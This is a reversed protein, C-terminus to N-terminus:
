KLEEPATPTRLIDCFLAWRRDPSANEGLKARIYGRVMEEGLSYTIIYSRYQDFFRLSGAAREPSQLAYEVLWRQTEERDRRGDIYARAAEIRAGSMQRTLEQIRDYREAEEVPLGALPYLVKKEYELRELGPFLLELGYNATGEAILSQPSYLPYVTFEVWGRERVLHQELLANYVHHGPYGEHACLNLVRDITIPSDTNIEIVSFADGKYWNYAGWPKDTVYEMRFSENAPLRIYRGTRRRCEAIATDFVSRLKEKPVVFRQRFRELRDPLEGEGPLLAELEQRARRFEAEGRAPMVANYLAASEADFTMKSGALFRAYAKAAAIQVLLFRARRRTMEDVASTLRKQITTAMREARATLDPLPIEKAPRTTAFPERWAAPGYYADVYGADYQGIQLTMKVFDAAVADLPDGGGGRKEAATLIMSMMLIMGVITKGNM